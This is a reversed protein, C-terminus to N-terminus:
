KRLVVFANHYEVMEFGSHSLGLRALLQDLDWAAVEVAWLLIPCSTTPWSGLDAAAEAPIEILRLEPRVSKTFFRYIESSGYVAIPGRERALLWATGVSPHGAFAVETGPTFIRVEGLEPDDVFVTESFGLEAAFGQRDGDPVAAGDLVVGLPNGGSGDRDTFVRLVHVDAV